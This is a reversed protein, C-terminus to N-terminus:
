RIPPPAVQAGNAKAQASLPANLQDKSFGHVSHLKREAEAPADGGCGAGSSLGLALIVLLATPIPIRHM